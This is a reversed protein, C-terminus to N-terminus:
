VFKDISIDFRMVFTALDQQGEAAQQPLLAGVRGLKLCGLTGGTYFCGGKEATQYRLTHLSLFDEEVQM